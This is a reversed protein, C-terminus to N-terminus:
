QAVIHFKALEGKVINRFAAAEGMDLLHLAQLYEDRNPRFTVRRGFLLSLQEELIMRGIRGNGDLFPHILQFEHHFLVIEDIRHNGLRTRLEQAIENWHEFLRTLNPIIADPPITDIKRQAVSVDVIRAATGFTDVILVPQKRLVGAWAFDVPFLSKHTALLRETSIHGDDDLVRLDLQATVLESWRDGLSKYELVEDLPPEADPTNSVREITLLLRDLKAKIDVLDTEASHQLRKEELIHIITSGKVGNSLAQNYLRGLFDAVQNDIPEREVAQKKHYRGGTWYGGAVGAALLLLDKLIGWDKMSWRPVASALYEDPHRAV